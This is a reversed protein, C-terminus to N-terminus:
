RLGRYGSTPCDPPDSAGLAKSGFARWVAHLVALLQEIEAISMRGSVSRSFRWRAQVM